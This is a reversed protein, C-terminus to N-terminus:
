RYYRSDTNMAEWMANQEDLYIQREQAPTMFEKLVPAMCLKKAEIMADRENKACVHGVFVNRVNYICYTIM